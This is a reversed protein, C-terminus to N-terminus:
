YSLQYLIQRCHRLGRNLEQTPFVGQLLSCSSVGTNQGQSNWPGYLGHPRLCDSVASRSESWKVWWRKGKLKLMGQLNESPSGQQSLHYLIQRCPSRPETAPNPLDGLPPFPLGSWYEQRSFEMSLPAQRATTMPDHMTLCSQANWQERRVGDSGKCREAANESGSSSGKEVNVWKDVNAKNCPSM